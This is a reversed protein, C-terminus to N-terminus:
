WDFNLEEDYDEFRDLNYVGDDGQPKNIRIGADYELSVQEQEFNYMDDEQNEPTYESLNKPRRGRRGMPKGFNSKASDGQKKKREQIVELLKTSVKPKDTPKTELQKEVPQVAAVKSKTSAVKALKMKTKPHAQAKAAKKVVLKTAVKLKGM